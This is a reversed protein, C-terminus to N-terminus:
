EDEGGEPKTGHQSLALLGAATAAYYGRGRYVGTKAILGRRILRRLPAPARDPHELTWGHCYSQLWYEQAKTLRGM